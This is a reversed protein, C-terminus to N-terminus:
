PKQGKDVSLCSCQRLSLSSNWFSPIWTSEIDPTCRMLDEVYQDNQRCRGMQYSQELRKVVLMAPSTCHPSTVLPSPFQTIGSSSTYSTTSLATGTYSMVCSGVDEIDPWTCNSLSISHLLAFISTRSREARVHHPASASFLCAGTIIVLISRCPDFPTFSLAKRGPRVSIYEDFLALACAHRM